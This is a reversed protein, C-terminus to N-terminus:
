EHLWWVCMRDTESHTFVRAGLFIHVVGTDVVVTDVVGTDVVVTDVVGTDVVGTDVVGTDVVGTDVSIISEHHILLLYHHIVRPGACDFSSCSTRRLRIIFM